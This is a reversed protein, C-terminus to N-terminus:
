QNIIKEILDQNTYGSTIIDKKHKTSSLKDWESSPNDSSLFRLGKPAEYIYFFANKLALEKNSASFVGAFLGLNLFINSDPNSENFGSNEMLQKLHEQMLPTRLLQYYVMEALTKAQELDPCIGIDISEEAASNYKGEINCFIKETIGAIGILEPAASSIDYLGGKKFINHPTPNLKKGSEEGKIIEITLNGSDNVFRKLYTKAVWHEKRM